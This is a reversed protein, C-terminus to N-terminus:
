CGEGVLVGMEAIFELITFQKEVIKMPGDIWGHYACKVPASLLQMAYPIRNKLEVWVTIKLRSKGDNARPVRRSEGTGHQLEVLPDPLV